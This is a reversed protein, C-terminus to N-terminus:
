VAEIEIAYLKLIVYADSYIVCTLVGDDDPKFMVASVGYRAECDQEAESINDYQGAIYRTWQSIHELEYKM